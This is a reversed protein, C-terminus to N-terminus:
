LREYTVVELMFGHPDLIFTAYTHEGYKPMPGPARVVSDGRDVAWQHVRDVDDRTPVHFALHQLGVGRRSYPGPEDARYLFVQAGVWDDPRYGNGFDPVDGLLPMLENYYEQAAEVDPVGLGIHEIPM